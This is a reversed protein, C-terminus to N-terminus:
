LTFRPSSSYKAISLTYPTWADNERARYEFRLVNQMGPLVSLIYTACRGPDECDRLRVTLEVLGALLEPLRKESGLVEESTGVAEKCGDCEESGHEHELIITKLIGCIPRGIAIIHLWPLEPADWDSVFGSKVVTVSHLAPFSDRLISILEGLAYWLHAISRLQVANRM